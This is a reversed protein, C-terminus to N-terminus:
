GKQDAGSWRVVRRDDGASILDYGRWQLANVSHAHGGTRADLRGLPDLSDAHWLKVTKDRSATALTADSPSFAAQYITSRHAPLALIARQGNRLDWIRLHGDKGGSVLASKRPHFALAHAGEEHAAWSAIANLTGADLLHLWGDGTAAGLTAGDPSLALGRVKADSLPIRRRLAWPAGTETREWLALSGDGGGTVLAGPHPWALTYVGMTHAQLAHQERRERLNLLHLTGAASGLALEDPGGRALAYIPGAIRAIARTRDPATAEWALVLGDGGASLLQGDHEALAYIAGSHDRHLLDGTMTRKTM